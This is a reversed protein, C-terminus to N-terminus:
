QSGAHSKRWFGPAVLLRAGDVGNAPYLPYGRDEHLVRIGKTHADQLRSQDM